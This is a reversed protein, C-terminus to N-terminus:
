EETVGPGILSGIREILTDSEVTVPLKVVNSDDSGNDGAVMVLKIGQATVNSPEIKVYTLVLAPKENLIENELEEASVSNM